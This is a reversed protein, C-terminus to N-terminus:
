ILRTLDQQYNKRLMADPSIVSLGACYKNHVQLVACARAVVKDMDRELVKDTAAFIKFFLCTDAIYWFDKRRYYMNRNSVAGFVLAERMFWNTISRIRNEYVVGQELSYDLLMNLRQIVDGWDVGKAIRHAHVSPDGICPLKLTKWWQQIKSYVSLYDRLEGFDKAVAPDKELEKYAPLMLRIFFYEPIRGQDTKYLPHVQELLSNCGFLPHAKIANKASLQLDSTLNDANKLCNRYSSKDKLVEHGFRADPMVSLNFHAFFNTTFGVAYDPNAPLYTVEPHIDGSELGFLLALKENVTRAIKVHGNVTPHCYDVYDDQGIFNHGDIVCDEPIRKFVENRYVEQMRYSGYDKEYAKDFLKEANDAQRNKLALIAQNYLVIPYLPNSSDEAQALLDAAAIYDNQAFAIAALNNQCIFRLESDATDASITRYVEEAQSFNANDHLRLAENLEACEGMGSYPLHTELGFIRAFCYNGTNNCPPYYKNANINIVLVPIDNKNCLKFIAQINEGFDRASVAGNVPLTAKGSYRFTYPPNRRLLPNKKKLKKDYRKNLKFNKKASYLGRVKKYYGYACSDCNGLGVLVADYHQNELYRQLLFFSDVSTLNFVSPNDFVVRETFSYETIFKDLFNNDFCGLSTAFSDGLVLIKKATNGSM